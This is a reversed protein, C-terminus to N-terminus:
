TAINETVFIISYLLFREADKLFLINIFNANKCHLLENENLYNLPIEDLFYIM